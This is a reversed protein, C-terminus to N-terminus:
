EDNGYMEQYVQGQTENLDHLLQEETIGRQEAEEGLARAHEEFRKLRRQQERMFVEYEPMSIIAVVPLGDKEIIFHERGSFARRILDGFHRHAKTAPITVPTSQQAAM